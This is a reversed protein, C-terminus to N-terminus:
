HAPDAAFNPIEVPPLLREIGPYNIKGSGLLPIADVKLISRPVMIEGIGRAAAHALLASGDANACTTVLVLREGKRPDPQAMVVHAAEPWLSAALQEAAAMSVMEGGIKAFRKARGLIAVFGDPDISVIDGTNHWGDPPPELVGPAADRFYGLMVNPGRVVLGGGRAIGEIPALRYDIGPLLRGVTGARHHMGTNVALVPSTESVGYGELVRVGFRDAYIRRTEERLKEAGCIAIRLSHYDYPHAFRTWGALFTDSGAIVTADSDYIMEPIIRYHLPSPYILVPMGRYLPLLIGVTLGFSHFMPLANLFRDTPGLDLTAAFQVCNVLINRHSLVVGKPMGESGSTFLVVAPADAPLRAAPLTAARFADLRARLRARRDLSAYIDELWLFRVQEEMRAVVREMRVRAIFARSSVVVSVQAIRCASLMGDAGVSFNLLAPVRGFAQLGLFTVLAANANPLMIGVREGAPALADLRRGLLLVEHLLRRYSLPKRAVDEVIPLDAGYRDRARLLASFLSRNTDGAAVANNMLTDHVATVLAARRAHGHLAPDAALRVAPGITLRIPVFWRRRFSGEMRGLPSFQPGDIHIPLVQADAWEAIVAAGHYIKMLAGTRTVRGEPFIVLRRDQCVWDILTRAALPHAPDLLFTDGPAIFRKVWWKDALGAYLAFAPADPLFAALLVADALSVHNVVIVLRKGAAHYHELGVIEARHFVKFYCAALRRLTAPPLIRLFWVAAALNALATLLLICPAPVHVFALAAALLSAVVMTAANLVNNMAIMRSRQAPDARNQILAYLSVSFVGGCLALLFLDAMIRWGAFAAFVDAPTPLLGAAYIALGLDFTFLSIGLAAFPVLRPSVEDHLLRACGLSGVGVGVSFVTLLLTILGADGGLVQKAAVPLEALVVAGVAWFWSIGLAALWVDRNTRGAEILAMTQRVLNWGIVLDPAPAPAPPICWSAALGALAVLLGLTAVIEPGHPARVLAAGAITGALIGLFTGAEILGNGAVLEGEGLHDPLIGYKLPSFFTAQVGLGFLVAMLLPLSATVFGVAGLAMLGVEWLKTVRILWAKETRDALEGAVSSFLVYPLIFVALGIAVLEDGYRASLFLAMVGLANKFLNDNLAGLFQTVFLPLFRRTRLLAVTPQDAPM